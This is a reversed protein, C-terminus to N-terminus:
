PNVPGSTIGLETVLIPSLANSDVPNVLRVSELVRVDMASWANAPLPNVPESVIGLETVYMPYEAKWFQEPNVPDRTIGSETVLMMALANLPQSPNVPDRVIELEKGVM